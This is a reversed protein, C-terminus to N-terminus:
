KPNSLHISKYVDVFKFNYTLPYNRYCNHGTITLIKGTHWTEIKGKDIEKELKLCEAFKTDFEQRLIVLLRERDTATAYTRKIDDLTM